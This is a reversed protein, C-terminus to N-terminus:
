LESMNAIMLVICCSFISLTNSIVHAIFPIQASSTYILLLDLTYMYGYVYLKNHVHIIIGNTYTYKYKFKGIFHNINCSAWSLQHLKYASWLCWWCIDTSCNRMSVYMPHTPYSLICNIHRCTEISCMCCKILQYLTIAECYNLCPNNPVCFIIM